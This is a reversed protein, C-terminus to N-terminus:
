MPGLTYWEPADDQHALITMADAYQLRLVNASYILDIGGTWARWGTVSFQVIGISVRLGTRPSGSVKIKGSPVVGWVYGKNLSLVVNATSSPLDIPSIDDPM